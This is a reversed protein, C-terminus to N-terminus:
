ATITASRAKRRNSGRISRPVDGHQPAVHALIKRWHTAIALGAGEARVTRANLLRSRYWRGDIDASVEPHDEGYVLLTEARVRDLRKLWDRDAFALQDGRVGADGQRAALKLMREVRDSAALWGPERESIGLMSPTFPADAAVEDPFHEPAPTDIVVAQDVLEPHQAALALAVLGGAGWGVVGVAGYEVGELMMAQREVGRLYSAVDDAHRWFSADADRRWPDSAGYGPREPAIVRVGWQTTVLPDPDFESAGPSPHCLLVLRRAIPDGLDSLGLARGDRLTIQRATM